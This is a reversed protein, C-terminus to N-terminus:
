CARKLMSGHARRRLQTHRSLVKSGHLLKDLLLNDKNM